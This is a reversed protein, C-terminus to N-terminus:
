FLHFLFIFIAYNSNTKKLTPVMQQQKTSSKIKTKNQKKGHLRGVQWCGEVMVLLVFDLGPLCWGDWGGSWEGPASRALSSYQMVERTEKNQGAPQWPSGSAQWCMWCPHLLFSCSVEPATQSPADRPASPSPASPHTHLLFPTPISHSPRLQINSSHHLLRVFAQFHYHSRYM